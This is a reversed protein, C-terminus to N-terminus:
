ASGEAPKRIQGGGEAEELQKEFTIMRQKHARERREIALGISKELNSPGDQQEKKLIKINQKLARIDM